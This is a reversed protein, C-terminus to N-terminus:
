ERRRSSIWELESSYSQECFYSTSRWNRPQMQNDTEPQKWVVDIREVLRVQTEVYPLFSKLAYDEFTCTTERNARIMNVAVAGDIITVNVTPRTSQVATCGKGARIEEKTPSAKGPQTLFSPVRSERTQLLRWPWRGQDPMLHVASLFPCLWKQAFSTATTSKSNEETPCSHFLM